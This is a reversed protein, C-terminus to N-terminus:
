ARQYPCIGKSKMVRGQTDVLLRFSVARKLLKPWVFRGTSLGAVKKPCFMILAHPDLLSKINESYRNITHVMNVHIIDQNSMHNLMTFGLNRNM